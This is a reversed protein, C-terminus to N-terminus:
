ECSLSGAPLTTFRAMAYLPSLAARHAAADAELAALQSAVDEATFGHSDTLHKQARDHARQLYEREFISVFHLICTLIFQDFSATAMFKKVAAPLISALEKM